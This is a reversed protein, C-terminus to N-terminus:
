GAISRIRRRFRPPRPFSNSMSRRPSPKPSRSSSRTRAAGVAAADGRVRPAVRTPALLEIDADNKLIDGPLSLFVPGTPPALATKIARHVYRPLDEARHVEAAFKVFPRVLTPLDATLVPETVLYEMDQQGATVLV